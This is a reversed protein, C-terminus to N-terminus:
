KFTMYATININHIYLSIFFILNRLCFFYKGINININTALKEIIALMIEGTISIQHYGRDVCEKVFTYYDQKEENWGLLKVVKKNEKESKWFLKYKELKM